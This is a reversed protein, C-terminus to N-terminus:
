SQVAICDGLYATYIMAAVAMVMIIIISKIEFAKLNVGRVIIWLSLVVFIGTVICGQLAHVSMIGRITDTCAFHKVESLGTILAIISTTTGLYLNWKFVESFIVGMSPIAIAFFAFLLSSVLLVVPFHVLIQHVSEM